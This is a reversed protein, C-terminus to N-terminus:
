ETVSGNYKVAMMTIDDFQPAEGVFTDISRKVSALIDKTDSSDCQNLAELLREEGFLNNGSDTAETVGDTYVFIMDGPELQFERNRFVLGEMTAVAPTHRYKVLEYEGSVARKVAPHEHGANVSIGSGTRLDVIAFWVTVFLGTANGECLQDNVKELVEGPSLEPLANNKILTKAIVMFLAAPVGKGSVDAIVIGLHDDDVMFFDYFDGGVEKAPTMSAFLDFEKREPLYPFIKPLMDAQIATAVNLEAGIREKEATVHALEKIYTRLDEDMKEFSDALTELEDNTHIDIEIAKERELNGVMKQASDTLQDIPEIISKKLVGYSIVMMLASAAATVAVILLFFRIFMQIIDPVSMDLGVVAVPEGASNFVPSFASVIFGYTPDNTMKIEEPPDHRYVAAVAEKGGEMYEEHQGLECAGENNEADWVYILDDEKPVFVYYYRIDTELQTKNLFNLIENYYDDKEQTEVYAAIRDGDILDAATRTYSFASNTYEKVELYYLSIMIPISICIVLLIAFIVLGYMMKKSLTTREKEKM